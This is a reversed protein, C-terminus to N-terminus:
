QKGEGILKGIEECSILKNQEEKMKGAQYELFDKCKERIEAIAPFFRSTRICDDCALAFENDPIDECYKAYIAAMGESFSKHEFLTGFIKLYRAVMGLSAM